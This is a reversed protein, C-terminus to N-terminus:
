AWRCAGVLAIALACTGVLAAVLAGGGGRDGGGAGTGDGSGPGAGQGEGYQQQHNQDAHYVPQQLYGQQGQQQQYHHQQQQQQQQLQQPNAHCPPAWGVSGDSGVLPAGADGLSGGWAQEQGQGHGHGQGVGYGGYSAEVGAGVGVAVPGHGQGQGHGQAQEWGPGLGEIGSSAGHGQGGVHGGSGHGVLVKACCWSLQQCVQGLLQMLVSGGGGARGQQGGGGGQQGEWGQGGEVQHQQQQVRGEEAEVELAACLLAGYLQLVWRVTEEPWPDEGRGAPGSCDLLLRRTAGLVVSVVGGGGGGGGYGEASGEGVAGGLGECDRALGPRLRCCCVLLQLLRVCLSRHPADHQQGHAEACRLLLQAVVALAAAHPTAGAAVHHLAAAAAPPDAVWPDAAPGGGGTAALGLWYPLAAALVSRSPLM